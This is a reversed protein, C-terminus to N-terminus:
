NLGQILPIDQAEASYMLLEGVYDRTEYGRLTYSQIRGIAFLRAKESGKVWMDALAEEIDIRDELPILPKQM